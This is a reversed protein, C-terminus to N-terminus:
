GFASVLAGVPVAEPYVEALEAKVTLDELRDLDVRPTAGRAALDDNFTDAVDQLSLANAARDDREAATRYVDAKWLVSM